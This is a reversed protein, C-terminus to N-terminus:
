AECEVAELYVDALEYYDCESLGSSVFERVLSAGLTDGTDPVFELSEYVEREIWEKLLEKAAFRIRGEPRMFQNDAPNAIAEQAYEVAQRYSPEDNDLWLRVQETTTM